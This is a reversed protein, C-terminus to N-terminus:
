GRCRRCRTGAGVLKKDVYMTHLLPQDFGTQFKEAVILVQYEDSPSSARATERSRPLREHEAETLEIARDDDVTGPSRSSRGAHRHLGARRHLADIAQKYRVAHLRSRTVVMAKARGGIKRPTHARFHEVIIEAKQALNHPHLSSSGPSRATAGQAEDYRPTTPSRRRSGGTADRLDHLQRARRPHLGGRDGAADLVPPVARLKGSTARDAHRVAGADQGEADRHVRLLVPEAPTGARASRARRARGRGTSRGRRGADEAEAAALEQEETAGLVRRLDKAAEGTQSSHAEDVIVAYRARRAARRGQELM